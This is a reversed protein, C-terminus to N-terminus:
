TLRLGPGQRPSWCCSNAPWLAPPRVSTRDKESLEPLLIVACLETPNEGRSSLFWEPVILEIIRLLVEPRRTAGMLLMPEPFPFHSWFMLFCLARKICETRECRGKLYVFSIFWLLPGWIKTSMLFWRSMRNSCPNRPRVRLTEAKTPMLTPRLIQEELLNGPQPSPGSQSSSFSHPRKWKYEIAASPKSACLHSEGCRLSPIRPESTSVPPCLGPNM